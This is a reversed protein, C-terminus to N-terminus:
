ASNKAIPPTTFKRNVNAGTIQRPLGADVLEFGHAALHFGTNVMGLSSMELDDLFSRSPAIDPWM